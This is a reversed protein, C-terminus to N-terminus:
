IVLSHVKFYKPLVCARGDMIYLLTSRYPQGRDQTSLWVLASTTSGGSVCESVHTPGPGGLRHQAMVGSGGVGSDNGSVTRSIERGGSKVYQETNKLM